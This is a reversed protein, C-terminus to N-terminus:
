RWPKEGEISNWCISYGNSTPKIKLCNLTDVLSRMV